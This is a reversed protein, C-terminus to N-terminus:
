YEFGETVTERRGNSVPLRLLRTYRLFKKYLHHAQIGKLCSGTTGRQTLPSMQTM